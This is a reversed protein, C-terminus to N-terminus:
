LAVMKYFFSFLCFFGGSFVTIEWFGKSPFIRLFVNEMCFGVGRRFFRSKEKKERYYNQSIKPILFCLQLKQSIYRLNRGARM